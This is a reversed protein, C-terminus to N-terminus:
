RRFYLEPNLTMQKWFTWTTNDLAADYGSREYDTLYPRVLAGMAWARAKWADHNISAVLARYDKALDMKLQPSNRYSHALRSATYAETPLWKFTQDMGWPIYTWLKTKTDQYLYFNNRNSTAGDGHALLNELLYYMRFRPLDIITGIAVVDDATLTTPDSDLVRVFADFSPGSFAADLDEAKGEKLEFGAATGEAYFDSHRGTANGSYDGEILLGKAKPDDFNQSIFNKGLNEVNAYIGMFTGNVCVKTLNCRPAPYGVSRMLSYSFCQRVYSQDQIANNLVLASIADVKQGKSRLFEERGDAKDKKLNMSPKTTSFSGCISKKSIRALGADYGNITIQAPFKTYSFDPNNECIIPPQENKLTEWEGSDMHISVNLLKTDDYLADLVPQSERQPALPACADAVAQAHALSSLVFPLIFFPLRQM